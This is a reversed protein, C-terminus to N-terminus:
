KEFRCSFVGIGTRCHCVSLVYSSPEVAVDALVTAAVDEGENMSNIENDFSKFGDVYEFVIKGYTTRRPM